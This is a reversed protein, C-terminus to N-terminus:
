ELDLINGQIEENVKNAQKDDLSFERQLYNSIENYSIEDIAIYILLSSLEINYKNELEVKKKLIRFHNFELIVEIPLINFKKVANELNIM